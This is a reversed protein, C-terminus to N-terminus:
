TLRSVIFMITSVLGIIGFLTGTNFFYNAIKEKHLLNDIDVLEKNVIEKNCTDIIRQTIRVCINFLIIATINFINYMSFFLSTYRYEYLRRIDVMLPINYKWIFWCCVRRCSDSFFTWSYLFDFCM